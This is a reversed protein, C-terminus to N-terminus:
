SGLLVMRDRSAVAPRAPADGSLTPPDYGVDHGRRRPDFPGAWSNLALVAVREGGRELKEGRSRMLGSSVRVGGSRSVADGACSSLAEWPPIPRRKSREGSSRGWGSGVVTAKM